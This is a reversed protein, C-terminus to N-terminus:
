NSKSTLTALPKVTEAGDLWRVFVFTALKVQLEGAGRVWDRYWKNRTERERERARERERTQRSLSKIRRQLKQACFVVDSVIIPSMELCIVPDASSKPSKQVRM